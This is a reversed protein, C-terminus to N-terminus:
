DVLGLGLPRLLLTLLPYERQNLSGAGRAILVYKVRAAIFHQDHDACPAFHQVFDWQAIKVPTIQDGNFPM